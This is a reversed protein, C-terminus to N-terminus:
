IKLMEIRGGTFKKFKEIANGNKKFFWHVIAKLHPNGRKGAQLTGFFDFKKFSHIIRMM